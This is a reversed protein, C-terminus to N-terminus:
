VKFKKIKNLYISNFKSLFRFIKKGKKTTKKVIKELQLKKGRQKRGGNSIKKWQFNLNFENTLINKQTYKEFTIVIVFPQKLSNRNQYTPAPM